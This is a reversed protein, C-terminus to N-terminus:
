LTGATLAVMAAAACALGPASAGGLTSRSGIVVGVGILGLALGAWRMKTVREGAVRPALLAVLIPQLSVILAVSSELDLALYLLTFCAAQFLLVVVILDVWDRRAKPLPPRLVLFAPTLVAIVIAYRLALFTIPESYPLGLAVFAFGASWLGLFTAPALWRLHGTM